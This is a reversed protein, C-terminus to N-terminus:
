PTRELMDEMVSRPPNSGTHSNRTTPPTINTSPNAPHMPARLSFEKRRLNTHGIKNKGILELLFELCHTNLAGVM